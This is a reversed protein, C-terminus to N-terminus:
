AASRAASRFPRPRKTAISRSGVTRGYKSRNALARRRASVATARRREVGHEPLKGAFPMRASAIRSSRPIELMCTSRGSRPNEYATSAGSSMRMSGDPGTEAASRTFSALSRSSASRNRRKPSSRKERCIARAMTFSAVRRGRRACTPARRCSGRSRAPVAANRRRAGPWAHTGPTASRPSRRARM